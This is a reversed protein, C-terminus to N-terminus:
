LAQQFRKQKWRVLAILADATNRRHV